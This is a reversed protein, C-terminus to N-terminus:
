GALQGQRDVTTRNRGAEKSAYLARDARRVIDALSQDTLSMGAVGFSATLRIPLDGISIEMIRERLAEVRRRAQELNSGPFFLVFEEGGFRGYDGGEALQERFLGTLRCLVEDGHGHGHLDNIEKFHDVDCIAITLPRGAIRAEDMLRAGTVEIARRNPAGTLSDTDAAVRLREALDGALLYLSFIGAAVTLGPLGLFVIMTYARELAPTPSNRMAALVLGGAVEIAALAYSTIVIPREGLRLRRGPRVLATTGFILVSAAFLPVIASRYGRNPDFYSFWLILATAALHAAALRGLHLPLGSRLRYATAAFIPPTMAIMSVILNLALNGRFLFIYIADVIYLLVNIGFTCALIYAIRPQGLTRAALLMALAMLANVVLLIAFIFADVSM